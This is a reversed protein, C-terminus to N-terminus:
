ILAKPISNAELFSKEGWSDFVSYDTDIENGKCEQKSEEFIKIQTRNETM